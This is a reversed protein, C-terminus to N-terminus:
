PPTARRCSSIARYRFRDAEGARQARADREVAESRSVGGAARPQAPVAAHRPDAARHRHRAVGRAQRRQKQARGRAHHWRCVGDGPLSPEARQLSRLRAPHTRQQTARAHRGRASVRRGGAAAHDPDTFSDVMEALACPRSALRMDEALYVLKMGGGGLPRTVRYRGGIISNAAIMETREGISLMHASARDIRRQARRRGREERSQYGYSAASAACILHLLYGIHEPAMPSDAVGFSGSCGACRCTGPLSPRPRSHHEPLIRDTPRMTRNARPHDCHWRTRRRLGQLLERGRRSSATRM